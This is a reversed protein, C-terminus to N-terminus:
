RARTSRCRRSCAIPRRGPGPLTLVVRTPSEARAQMEAGDLRLVDGIGGQATAYAAKLSWVVDDATAPTGDSFRLGPGCRSTSPTTDTRTVSEALWPEPRDTEPNVRVLRGDTLLSM